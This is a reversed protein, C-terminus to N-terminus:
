GKNDDSKNQAIFVVVSKNKFSSFALYVALAERLALDASDEARDVAVADAAEAADLSSDGDLTM